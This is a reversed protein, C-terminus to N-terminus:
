LYNLRYSNLLNQSATPLRFVSDERENYLRGIILYLAHKIAEPVQSADAWGVQYVLSIANMKEAVTPYSKTSKAAVRAPISKIDYEYETTAWTLETDLTSFYKISTLASVQGNKLLIPTDPFKDMYATVTTNIFLRNCYSQAHQTAALILSTILSDENTDDVRLQMKADALSVVQVSSDTYSYTM